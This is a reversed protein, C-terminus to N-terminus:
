FSFIIYAVEVRVTESQNKGSKFKGYIAAHTKQEMPDPIDRPRTYM